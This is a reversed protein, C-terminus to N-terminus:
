SKGMRFISAALAVIFGGGSPPLGNKVGPMRLAVNGVVLIGVLYKYDEVPLVHLAVLVASCVLALADLIIPGMYYWGPRMPPEIVPRLPPPPIIEEPM